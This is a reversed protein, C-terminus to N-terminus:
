ANHAGKAGAIASRIEGASLCKTASYCDCGIIGYKLGRELLAVLTTNDSSQLATNCIARLNSAADAWLSMALLIRLEQPAAQVTKWIASYGPDSQLRRAHADLLQDSDPM